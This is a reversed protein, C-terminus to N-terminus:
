CRERSGRTEAFQAEARFFEDIFNRANRVQEAPTERSSSRKGSRPTGFSRLRFDSGGARTARVRRAPRCCSGTHGIFDIMLKCGNELPLDDFRSRRADQAAQRM